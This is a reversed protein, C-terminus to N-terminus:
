NRLSFKYTFLNFVPCSFVAKSFTLVEDTIPAGGTAVYKLRGGFVARIKNFVLKDYITNTRYIGRSYFKIISLCIISISISKISPIGKVIQM